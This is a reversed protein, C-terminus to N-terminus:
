EEDIDFNAYVNVVDDLEDFADMMKLVREADKGTVKVTSVPLMTMENSEMPINADALAKLVAIYDEPATLIEYSEPDETIVDEAGAEIALEMLKDEAVASKAIIFQGKRTFMFAVSGTTGLSGDYKSFVHRVEAVTRNLNDTQTEVFVAVGGPGYGEYTRDEFIMGELEGTGRKIANEINDKPMNSARAKDVVVRLRANAGPDGGGERAAITIERILRSFLKGRAADAAGKKRKITAWKSHGSM